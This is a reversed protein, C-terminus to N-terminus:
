AEPDAHLSKDVRRALLGIVPALIEVAIHTLFAARNSRWAARTTPPIRPRGKLTRPAGSTKAM